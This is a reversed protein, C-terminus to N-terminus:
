NYCVAETTIIKIGISDEKEGSCILASFLSSEAPNFLILCKRKREEQNRKPYYKLLDDMLM